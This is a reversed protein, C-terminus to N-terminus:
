QWTIAVSGLPGFDATVTQGAAAEFVDTCVGTTIYDGAQLQRGFRPLEDALWAAVNLPHGLVASGKGTTAVQGDVTVTVEHDALNLKRWDRTAPEGKVWCGHIANDAAVPLAGVSWDVFRHDVVEISPLVEGVYRAITAATHPGSGEPVTAGMRIGFEAEIVRHVFRDAPLAAPSDFTTSSLLRGFVPRDIKLAEQAIPNTCAVKYGIAGGGSGELLRGVLVEQVRYAEALDTPRLDPPLDEMTAQRQRHALLHQAAAHADM